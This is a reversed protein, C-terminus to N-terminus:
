PIINLLVRQEVSQLHLRLPGQVRELATAIAADYQGWPNAHLLPALLAEARAEQGLALLTVVKWWRYTVVDPAQAIARTFAQEATVLDDRWFANIGMTFYRLGWTLSPPAVVLPQLDVVFEERRERWYPDVAMVDTFIQTVLPRQDEAPVRGTIRLVYGPADAPRVLAAEQVYAGSLDPNIEVRDQVDTILDQMHILEEPSPEVPYFAPPPPPEQAPVAAVFLSVAALFALSRM